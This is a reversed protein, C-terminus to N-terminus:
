AAKLWKRCKSSFPVCTEHLHCSQSIPPPSHIAITPVPLPQNSISPLQTTEKFNQLNQTLSTDFNIPLLLDGTRGEIAEWYSSSCFTCPQIPACHGLCFHTARWVNGDSPSLRFGHNMQPWSVSTRSTNPCSGANCMCKLCAQQFQLTWPLSFTYLSGPIRQSRSIDALSMPGYFLQYPSRTIMFDSPM